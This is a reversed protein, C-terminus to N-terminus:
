SRRRRVLEREWCRRVQKKELVGIHDVLGNGVPAPTMRPHVHPGRVGEQEFDRTSGLIIEQMQLM